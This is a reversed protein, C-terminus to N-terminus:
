AKDILTCIYESRIEVNKRDQPRTPVNHAIMNRLPVTENIWTRLNGLDEFVDKFRSWNMEVIRFLEDLGVYYIPHSGRSPLWDHRREADQIRKAYDQIDRKGIKSDTWWNTEAEIKKHIVQRMSNEM